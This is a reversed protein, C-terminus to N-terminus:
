IKKATSEDGKVFAGFRSFALGAGVLLGSLHGEWSVSGTPSPLLGFFLYGYFLFFIISFLIGLFHKHRWGWVLIFGFYGFVLISAGMHNTYAGGILWVVSSSLWGIALTLLIFRETTVLMLFVASFIMISFFNSLIHWFSCHLFPALFIGYWYELNRPVVGYIGCGSVKETLFLVWLLTAFGLLFLTKEKLTALM